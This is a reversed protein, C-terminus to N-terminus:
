APIEEDTLDFATSSVLVTEIYSGSEAGDSDSAYAICTLDVVAVSMTHGNEDPGDFAAMPSLSSVALGVPRLIARASDRLARARLRSLAQQATNDTEQYISSIKIEIVAVRPGESTLLIDDETARYEHSEFDLGVTRESTLRIEGITNAQPWAQGALVFPV